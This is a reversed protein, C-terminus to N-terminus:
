FKFLGMELEGFIHPHSAAGLSKTIADKRKTVDIGGKKTTKEANVTAVTCYRSFVDDVISANYSPRESFNPKTKTFQLM